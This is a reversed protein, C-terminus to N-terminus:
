LYYASQMFKNSDILINLWWVMNLNKERTNIAQINKPNLLTNHCHVVPVLQHYLQHLIGDGLVQKDTWVFWLLRSRYLLSWSSNSPAFLNITAYSRNAENSKDQSAFLTRAICFWICITQHAQVVHKSQLNQFSVFSLNSFLQEGAQLPVLLGTFIFKWVGHSLQYM